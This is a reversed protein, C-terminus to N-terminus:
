ECPLSRSLIRLDDVDGAFYAPNFDINRGIHPPIASTLDKDAPVQTEGRKSGDICVRLKEDATSRTVRIFHWGGDTPRTVPMDIPPPPGTQACYDAADKWFGSVYLQGSDTPAINIGGKAACDWDAFVCSGFEAPEKVRMWFQITFDGSYDASTAAKLYSGSEFHEASGFDAALSAAPTSLVPPTDSSLRQLPMDHCVDRPGEEFDVALDCHSAAGAVENVYLKVGMPTAAGDLPAATLIGLRDGVLVDVQVDFTGLPDGPRFTADLLDDARGNRYLRLHQRGGSAGTAAALQGSLRLTGRVSSVYELAPDAGGDSLQGPVLLISDGLGTCDTSSGLDACSAITAKPTGRGVFATAGMYEGVSMDVADHGPARGYDRYHFRGNSGGQAGNWEGVADGLCPTGCGVMGDVGGGDPHDTTSSTSDDFLSQKCALLLFAALLALVRHSPSV